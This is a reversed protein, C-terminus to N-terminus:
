TGEPLKRSAALWRKRMNELEELSATEIMIAELRGETGDDKKPRPGKAFIAMVEALKKSVSKNNTKDALAAGYVISAGRWGVDYRAAAAAKKRAAANGTGEADAAGYVIWAGQWATDYATVSATTMTSHAQKLDAALLALVQGALMANDLGDPTVKGTLSPDARLMESILPVARRRRANARARHKVATAPSM